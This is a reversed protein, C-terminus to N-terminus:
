HNAINIIIHYAYKTNAIINFKLCLIRWGKIFQNYFYIKSISIINKFNINHVCYNPHWQNNELETIVHSWLLISFLQEYVSIEYECTFVKIWIESIIPLYVNEESEGSKGFLFKNFTKTNRYFFIKMLSIIILVWIELYCLLRRKIKM